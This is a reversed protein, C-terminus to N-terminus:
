EALSMGCRQAPSVPEPPLDFLDLQWRAENAIRSLVDRICPYVEEPLLALLRAIRHVCERLQGGGLPGLQLVAIDVVEIRDLPGITPDHCLAQFEVKFGHSLWSEEQARAHEKLHALLAQLRAVIAEPADDTSGSRDARFFEHVAMGTTCARPWPSALHVVSPPLSEGRGTLFRAISRWEGDPIRGEGHQRMVASLFGRLDDNAILTNDAPLSPAFAPHQQMGTSPGADSQSHTFAGHFRSILSSFM